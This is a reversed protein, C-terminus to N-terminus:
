PCTGALAEIQEPMLEIKQGLLVLLPNEATRDGFRQIPRLHMLKWRYQRAQAVEGAIAAIAGFAQGRQM